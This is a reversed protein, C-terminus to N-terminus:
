KNDKTKSKTTNPNQWMLLVCSPEEYGGHLFNFLYWPEAFVFGALFCTHFPPKRRRTRSNFPRKAHMILPGRNFHHSSYGNSPVSFSSLSSPSSFVSAVPEVLASLACPPFTGPSFRLSDSPESWTKSYSLVSIDWRSNNILHFFIRHECILKAALNVCTPQTSSELLLYRCM